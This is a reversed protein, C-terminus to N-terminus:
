DVAQLENSGYLAEIRCKTSEKYEPSVFIVMMYSDDVNVWYVQDKKMAGFMLVMERLKKGFAM